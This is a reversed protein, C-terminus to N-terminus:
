RNTLLCKRNWIDAVEVAYNIPFALRQLYLRESTIRIAVSVPPNKSLHCLKHHQEYETHLRAM